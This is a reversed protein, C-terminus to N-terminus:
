FLGPREYGIVFLAQLYIEDSDPAFNRETHKYQARVTLFRSPKYSAIASGALEYPTTPGDEAPAPLQSYDFRGGVFWNRTLQVEAISYLGFRGFETIETFAQGAEEIAFDKERWTYFFETLLNFGRYLALVPHRYDFEVHANLIRSTLSAQGHEDRTHGQAYGISTEVGTNAGLDYFSELRVFWAPKRSIGAAGGHFSGENDGNFYAGWLTFSLNDTVGFLRTVAGGTDIWGDGERGFLNIIVNPPDIEPIEEPDSDNYEGFGTRFKGLKAHIRLPLSPLTVFGEELGVQLEGDFVQEASFIAEFRAYPDVASRLGLEVEKLNFRNRRVFFDEGELEEDLARELARRDGFTHNYILNGELRVEPLLALWPPLARPATTTVDVTTPASPQGATMSPMAPAPASARQGARLEDLARQQDTVTKQLQEVTERLQRMESELKSDQAAVPSAGAALVAAVVGAAALGRRLAAGLSRVALAAAFLIGVTLCIAAGTPLDYVFAAALGVPISLTGLLVAVVFMAGIGVTLFRAGMAPLVLLAFTVLVGVSRIAFAVVVGLTLYLLFDWVRAKLGQAAATEFDFSVFVFEKQFQLHVLAVLVTVIALAVLEDMPVSLINGFLWNLARAEGVPNKAIFVIGLAAALVYSIGLVGEIPARGRWRIQSFALAGALSAGIATILPNWGLLLALAVGASAIQALAIGLFVIRKLVVYVGVFSCTAAVLTGALLAHQVFSQELLDTM